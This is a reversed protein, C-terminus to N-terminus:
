EKASRHPSWTLIGGGPMRASVPADPRGSRPRFERALQALEEQFGAGEGAMIRTALVKMEHQLGEERNRAATGKTRYACYLRLALTDVDDFADRDVLVTPYAETGVTLCDLSLEITQHNLRVRMTLNKAVEYAKTYDIGNWTATDRERARAARVKGNGDTYTADVPIIEPVPVTGNWAAVPVLNRHDRRYLATAISHGAAGARREDIRVPRGAGTVAFSRNDYARGWSDVMTVDGPKVVQRGTEEIHRRVQERSEEFIRNLRASLRTGPICYPSAGAAIFQSERLEEDRADDVVLQPVIRYVDLPSYQPRDWHPPTAYITERAAPLNDNEPAETEHGRIRRAIGYSVGEVILVQEVLPGAAISHRTPDADPFTAPNEAYLTVSTQEAFTNRRMAEGNLTIEDPHYRALAAVLLNVGSTPMAIRFDPHGPSSLTAYGDPAEAVTIDHIRPAAGAPKRLMAHLPAIDQADINGNTM